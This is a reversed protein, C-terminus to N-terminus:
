SDVSPDGFKALNDGVWSIFEYEPMPRAFYFGQFIECGMECLQRHQEATEVGEAIVALNMHGGISLMSHVLAATQSSGLDDVFARDIKFADLPLDKLYALSSYGTGFDDLAVSIGFDRLQKLKKKTATIDRLIATETVEVSLRSVDINNLRLAALTKPIFDPRAFQWASVNISVDGINGFGAMQWVNLREAITSVVWDGILHILGTEEAVPIFTAPSIFGHVPHRWRILAEAGCIRGVANVKPQYYLELQNKELAIRLGKEVELREDVRTQLEADYIEFRNRGEQKAKFLASDGHRMIDTETSAQDPIKLVGVSTGLSVVRDGLELPKSLLEIIKGATILLGQDVAAQTVFRQVVVFEDGGLRAVFFDAPLASKLRNGIHRLVSDGVDHGLAENITKFHDIDLFFAAAYVNTSACETVLQMLHEHLMARNPLGTIFDEFAMRRVRKEAELRQIESGARDAIIDLIPSLEDVQAFSASDLVAIFGTIEGQDNQLRAGVCSDLNYYQVSRDRPVLQKIGNNAVASESSVIFEGVSGELPASFNERIEGGICFSTTTYSAITKDPNIQAIMVFSADYLIALQRTLEDFFVFNSSASVGSAVSKLSAEILYQRTVDETIIAVGNSKLDAGIIPFLTVSLWKSRMSANLHIPEVELLRVLPAKNELVRQFESELGLRRWPEYDFLLQGPVIDSRWLDRSTRNRQILRGSKDLLHICHPSQEVVQSLREQDSKLDQFISREINLQSRQVGYNTVIANVDFGMNVAMLLAMLVFSFGVIKFSTIYGLEEGIGYSITFLQLLTYIMFFYFKRTEVTNRLSWGRWSTWVALVLGLCNLNMSALGHEGRVRYLIEGWPMEMALFSVEGTYRLSVPSILDIFILAASNLSAFLTWRQVNPDATYLGIFAFMAPIAGCLFFTQWHLIATHSDFSGTSYAMASTIQYGGAFFCAAAFAALLRRSFGAIGLFLGQVGIFFIFGSSIYFLPIAISM